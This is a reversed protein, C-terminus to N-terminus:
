RNGAGLRRDAFRLKANAAAGPWILEKDIGETRDIGCAFLLRAHGKV